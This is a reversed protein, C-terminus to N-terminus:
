LCKFLEVQEGSKLANFLVKSIKSKKVKIVAKKSSKATMLFEGDIYIDIDLNSNRQDLYINVSKGAFGFDFALSQAKKAKPVKQMPQVDVRMGLQKEIKEINKGQKGIVAAIDGDPIYVRCANNSLVEVDIFNTYKVFAKKIGGEALKLAGKKETEVVPIVVTQEGYTYIEYVSKNTEFDTIVVVPRALDAETMGSPVKVTMKLSLVKNVTGDKIFIVTDIVQPIVGMEIRGLFRQISDVPNTGHVVGIMGVGALRLDAFLAFDSTNRMEDYFTYDPRSLLLIDHIEAASGRAIAYQTIKDSVQLDRPAEVTKVINNLSVYFEALASAFTSKGMGPSGAILIGEAQGEIRQLLKESLEYDKLELSKVPRVATIEWVDALPPKAIVIRFKDLQVITSGKREIEVFGAPNLNAEEVIENAMAKIEDQSLADGIKLFEWEGPKGKKAVIEMKEKIHVSMTNKDFFEELRIKREEKPEFKILIVDIGKSEAVLAQVKDATLLTGKESFALGRIMADIAGAKAYSIEFEQPRRGVYSISFKLKKSLERLRKIEALGIYGTERNKNAQNELESLVAEHILINKIKIEKSEIKKSVLAEVIVSTDPILREITKVM